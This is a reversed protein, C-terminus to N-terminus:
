SSSNDSHLESLDRHIKLIGREAPHVQHRDPRTRHRHHISFPMIEKLTARWSPAADLTTMILNIVDFSTGMLVFQMTCCHGRQVM